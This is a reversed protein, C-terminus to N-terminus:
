QLTPKANSVEQPQMPHPLELCLDALKDWAQEHAAKLAEVIKSQLVVKEEISLEHNDPVIVWGCALLSKLEAEFFEQYTEGTEAGFREWRNNIFQAAESATINSM